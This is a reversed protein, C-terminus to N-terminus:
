ENRLAETMPLLGFMLRHLNLLEGTEPKSTPHEINTKSM